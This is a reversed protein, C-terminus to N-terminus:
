KMCEVMPRQHNKTLEDKVLFIYSSGDPDARLAFDSVTLDRLNERGRRGFHLMIDLFVKDQLSTADFVNFHKYLKQLDLPEIPPHHDIGGAGKRKLEAMMANFSAQSAKFELGKVIDYDPLHRNLGHRISSLSTKKYLEGTQSRSEAYFKALVTDLRQQSFNEFDEPIEKERLYARFVRVAHDTAKKTNASDKDAILKSLDESSLNTFRTKTAESMAKLPKEGSRKCNETIAATQTQKRKMACSSFFRNTDRKMCNIPIKGNFASFWHTKGSGLNLLSFRHVDSYQVFFTTYM